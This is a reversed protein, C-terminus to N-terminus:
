LSKEAKAAMARKAKMAPTQKVNTTSKPKSPTPAISTSTSATSSSKQKGGESPKVVPEQSPIKSAAQTVPKPLNVKFILSAIEYFYSVFHVSLGKKLTEPLEDWHARNDEPLIIKKLKHLQAAHVMRKLHTIPLVRGLLTLEGSVAWGQPVPKNLALSLLALAISAGAHVGGKSQGGKPLHIHVSRSSFFDSDLITKQSPDSTSTTSAGKATESAHQQTQHSKKAATSVKASNKSIEGSEKASQSANTKTNHQTKSDTNSNATTTSNATSDPNTSTARLANTLYTYALQTSEKMVEDLNGTIKYSGHTSETPPFALVEIQQVGLQTLATTCGPHSPSQEHEYKHFESRPLFQDYNNQTLHYSLNKSDSANTAINLSCANVIAQLQTELDRVGPQLPSYHKVLARIAADSMSVQKNTLGANALCKPLLHRKAIEVKEDELYGELTVVELRDRLAPHILEEWNATCVFLVNSIDFPLDIWVDTFNAQQSPDLIELLATAVQSGPTLKDIEDLLIVPNNTKCQNITRLLQGAMSALYTRRHGKLDSIDWLGGIAIQGFTRGLSSAISSAITTKGTGPPGILALVKGRAFRGTLQNVALLELVRKKVEEMGYHNKDLTERAKEMDFVDKSSENWPLELVFDLVRKTTSMEASGSPSLKSIQQLVEDRVTEPLEMARLRYKELSLRAEQKQPNESLGSLFNELHQKKEASTYGYRDGVFRTKLLISLCRVRWLIDEVPLLRSFYEGINPVDNLLWMVQDVAKSVEYATSGRWNVLKLVSEIAHSTESVDKLIQHVGELVSQLQPESKWELESEELSSSSSSGVPSSPESVSADVKSVHGSDGLYPVAADDVVNPDTQSSIVPAGSFTSAFDTPREPWVLKVGYKSAAPEMRAIELDGTKPCIYARRMATVICRDTELAAMQFLNGFPQKGLHEKPLPEVYLAWVLNRVVDKANEQSTGVADTTTSAGSTSKQTRERELFELDETM